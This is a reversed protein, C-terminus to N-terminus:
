SLERRVGGTGSEDVPLDDEVTDGALAASGDPPELTERSKAPALLLLVLALGTLATVTLIALLLWDVLIEEGTLPRTDM